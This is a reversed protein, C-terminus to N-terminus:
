TTSRAPNRTISHVLWPFGTHASPLGVALATSAVPASENCGYLPRVGNRVAAASLGPAPPNHRADPVRRTAGEASEGGGSGRSAGFTFPDSGAIQLSQLRPDRWSRSRRRTSLRTRRSIPIAWAGTRRRRLHHLPRRGGRGRALDGLLGLDELGNEVALEIAGEAVLCHQWFDAWGRAAWARGHSSRGAPLCARAGLHLVGSANELTAIRSVAGAANWRGFAGAAAARRGGAGSSRPRRSWRLTSRARSGGACGAGGLGPVGRVYSKTGDIPYDCWGGCTAPRRRRVGRGARRRAAGVRAVLKRM